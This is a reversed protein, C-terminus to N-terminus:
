LDKWSFSIYNGLRTVSWNIVLGIIPEKLETQTAPHGGKPFLQGSPWGHTRM